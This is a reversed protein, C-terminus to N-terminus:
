KENTNEVYIWRYGGATNRKGTCCESIHSNNIGTARQIDMMSHYVIDTEVCLVSKNVKNNVGNLKDNYYKSRNYEWTVLQINDFTYPTYDNLRDISPCLSTNYGSVVYNDWLEQFNYQSKVWVIFEEKTYNPLDMCRKRSSYLQNHYLDKIFGDVSRRRIKNNTNKCKKCWSNLGSKIKIDKGFMWDDKFSKCKSCLKLTAGGM